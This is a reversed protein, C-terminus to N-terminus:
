QIRVIPEVAVESGRGGRREIEAVKDHLTRAAITERAYGPGVYAIAALHRHLHSAHTARTALWPWGPGVTLACPARLLRPRLLRVHTLCAALTSAGGQTGVDHMHLIRPVAPCDV